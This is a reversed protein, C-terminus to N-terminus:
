LPWFYSFYYEKGGFVQLVIPLLFALLVQVAVVTITRIRQYRSNGHRRLFYAGGAIMALTYASGYLVWKSHFLAPLGLARGLLEAVRQLLDFRLGLAPLPGFYLLIYAAVLLASLSWALWSRNSAPQQYTNLLGSQV